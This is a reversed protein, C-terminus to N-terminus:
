KLEKKDFGEGRIVCAAIYASSAFIVAIGVAKSLFGVLASEQSLLGLSAGYAVTGVEIGTIGGLIKRSLRYDIPSVSIKSDSGDPNGDHAKGEHWEATGEMEAMIGSPTEDAPVPDQVIPLLANDEKWVVNDNLEARDQGNRPGKKMLRFM